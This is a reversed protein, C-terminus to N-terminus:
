DADPQAAGGGTGDAQWAARGAAAVARAWALRRVCGDVTMLADADRRGPATHPTSLELLSRLSHLAQAPQARLRTRFVAITGPPFRHLHVATASQHPRDEVALWAQLAAAASTLSQGHASVTFHKHSAPADGEAGGHPGRAGGAAAAAPVMSMSSGGDVSPIWAMSHSRGRGLAAARKNSATPVPPQATARPAHDRGNVNDKADDDDDDDDKGDDGSGGPAAGSPALPAACADAAVQPDGPNATPHGALYLMMPLPSGELVTLRCQVGRVTEPSSGGGAAATAPAAPRLTRPSPVELSALFVLEATLGHLV